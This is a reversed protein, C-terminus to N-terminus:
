MKIIKTVEALKEEMLARSGRAEVTARLKPETGSPRVCLWWDEFEIKLDEAALKSPDYGTLERVSDFDRKPDRVIGFLKGGKGKYHDWVKGICKLAAAREPFDFNTEPSMFYKGEWGVLLQSLKRGKAKLKSAMDLITLAALVGSDCLYFDRFFFHGSYEGAFVASAYEPQRMLAKIKAHGVPTPVGIVKRGTPDIEALVDRVLWSTTLNYFIHIQPEKRAYSEAMRRAILAIISSATVPRASDDVLGMRDADGDFCLGMDAGYSDVQVSLAALFSENLPNPLNNPFNGDPTSDVFVFEFASLKKAVKQFVYGGMGNGANVVVKLPAGGAISGSKADYDIMTLVRDTYDDSVDLRVTASGTMQRIVARRMDDLQGPSIPKGGRAVMKVGHFEKPNHSATVMAGGEFDGPNQGTAFYIYESSCLGLSFVKAGSDQLGAIFAAELEESGVRMDRGVVVRVPRINPNDACLLRAFARGVERMIEENVDSPYVGRVDDRKFVVDRRLLKLLKDRHM